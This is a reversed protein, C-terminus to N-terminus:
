AVLTTYLFLTIQIHFKILQSNKDNDQIHFKILQSNKDNNDELTEIKKKKKTNKLKVM